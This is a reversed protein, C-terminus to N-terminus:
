EEAHQSIPAPMGQPTELVLLFRTPEWTVNCWQHPQRADFLLADGPGVAFVEDGVTYDVRGALGFVLEQGDHAITDGGSGAGPRLAVLYPELRQGALGSALNEIQAGGIQSTSGEGAKMFVVTQRDAGGFMDVVRVGLATALRHLSSVTPSSQGREILSVANVSLGSREALGRLSFGRTARLTRIRRGVDPPQPGTM